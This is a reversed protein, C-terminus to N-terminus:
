SSAAEGWLQCAVNGASLRAQRIRLSCSAHKGGPLDWAIHRLATYRHDWACAAGTELQRDGEALPEYRAPLGLLLELTVKGDGDADAQRFQHQVFADLDTQKISDQLVLILVQEPDM